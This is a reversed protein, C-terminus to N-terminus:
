VITAVFLRRVAVFTITVSVRAALRVKTEAEDVRPVQENAEGVTVQLRPVSSLPCDAVTVMTTVGVAVPATPLVADTVWASVSTVVALLVALALVVTTADASRDTVLDPAGLGTSAPCSTVNVITTCFAPGLAATFATSLSDTGAFVVKREREMGAPKAQLPTGATPPVPDNVQVFALRAAPALAVKVNTTRTPAPVAGPVTMAFVAVTEVVVASGSAVSLEADAKTVTFGDTTSRM